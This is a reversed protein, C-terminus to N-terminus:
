EFHHGTPSMPLDIEQVFQFRLEFSSDALMSCRDCVALTPGVALESREFALHFVSGVMIPQKHMCTMGQRRLETTQAIGMTTGRDVANAPRITVAVKLRQSTLSRARSVDSRVRLEVDDLLEDGLQDNLASDHRFDHPM